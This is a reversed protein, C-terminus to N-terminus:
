PVAAPEFDIVDPVAVPLPGIEHGIIKGYADGAVTRVTIATTLALGGRNAIAVAQPATRPVAETSRRRWWAEAKQRAYGTHEFCVWESLFENRDIQYDVRMTRPADVAGRKHHVSYTTRLVPVKTTTVPRSLIAAESAKAAHSPRRPAPFEYGCQPCRAYGTAILAHCEPCEKAPAPGGGNGGGDPVRIQDVPGHRLVNGGFDLVLCDEKSPYVRFGRGVMQYFLGPSLTPRVLAVCDIVPADFGTTLVNVNCLFKLDGAKFRALTAAREGAATKGTVFGCDIGHRARLVSLIHEGHRVGSAFILVANRTKTYEVIEGCAAEVLADADMLAEVASTAFDGGKVRLGATEVKATGARTVLPCLYGDRILERVGAEFCVRNLVGDPTCIVGSELRFPTATLGIVRVRPNAVRAGALFHRYMGDGSLPITHAEDVLVLDFADLQRARRYISQIGALIVSQDTDRRGLGASYIGVEVDPCTTHLKDAGQELLEQRHALILVRGQWERVADQCISAMVHTKGSATPLVVAPNDDRTYLHDYVSAKAREQYPRLQMM